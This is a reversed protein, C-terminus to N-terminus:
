AGVPVTGRGCPMTPSLELEDFTLRVAAALDIQEKPTSM